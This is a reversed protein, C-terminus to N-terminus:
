TDKALAPDTRNNRMETPKCYEEAPQSARQARLSRPWRTKWKSIDILTIYCWPTHIRYTFKGQRFQCRKLMRLIRFHGISLGCPIEWYHPQMHPYLSPDKEGVYVSPITQPNQFHRTSSLPMRLYSAHWHTCWTQEFWVSLILILFAHFSRAHTAHKTAHKAHGWDDTVYPKDACVPRTPVYGLVKLILM